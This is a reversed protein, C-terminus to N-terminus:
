GPRVRDRTFIIKAKTGRGRESELTLTAGNAEALARALPLGLGLGGGARRRKPAPAPALDMARAIEAKSMGSGSDEIAIELTGDRGIGSSVRVRGGATTFKLANTLLNIVIQRLSTADAAVHPLGAALDLALELGASEALPRVQLAINELTANVDVDSTALGPGKALLAPKDTLVREVIRIAHCASDHIGAVYGAYRRDGVPGFREDKMIEAAAAIAGLPTRLEHALESLLPRMDAPVKKQPEKMGAHSNIVARPRSAKRGRERVTVYTSGSNRAAVSIECLLPLPGAPSWFILRESRPADRGRGPWDHVIERLRALAPSAGDLTGATLSPSLGLRRLGAMTAAVIRGRKVDIIWAAGRLEGFAARVSEPLDKDILAPPKRDM